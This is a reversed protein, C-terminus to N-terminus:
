LTEEGLAAALEELVEWSSEDLKKEEYSLEEFPVLLPHLRMVNDRKENYKWNNLYHFRCWREHELWWCKEKEDDSLSKYKDSAKKCLDKTINATDADPILLGVKIRLHEASAISSARQWGSLEDWSSGKGAKQRYLENLMIATRDIGNEMVLDRTLLEDDAGFCITGEPATESRVYIGARTPFYHMLEAAMTANKTMDDSCIIIRDARALLENDENWERKEFIVCDRDKAAEDVAVAEKLSSHDRRFNDWDGFVHYEVTHDPPFVNIILAKELMQAAFHGDGILVVTKEQARLPNRRLYSRATLDGCDLLKLKLPFDTSCADNECTVDIPFANGADNILNKGININNWGDEGLIFVHCPQLGPCKKVVADLSSDVVLIHKLGELLDDSLVKNEGLFIWAAEPEKQAISMALGCSRSDYTNFIYWSRKRNRRMWYVPLLRGYFVSIVIGIIWAMIGASMIMLIAGICRGIPTVPAIDGYGVTTLTAMLYWIADFANGFGSAENEVHLLSALLVVYLLILSIIIIAIRNRKLKM